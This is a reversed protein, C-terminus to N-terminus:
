NIDERVVGEIELILDAGYVKSPTQFGVSVQGALVKTVIALATMSTLTYGEPCQLRSRKSSGSDSVEGWLRTVGEKRQADTPGPAQSQILRKQFNQVIPLGLLWGLYRSAVMARYASESVATYVEINPIGTSYFATSVDGWPITTTLVAGQGFDIMRTKWAAPVPTLVGGRRVLGGKDQAEVMTTATGRSMNGATFGLALHTASPMQAKLYSALCDSPVVDFGVGPLLMVGASKAEADKAAAAEFVAVEGTIDLYHTKTRLCGEVMPQSTKSFPGACHLVAAVDELAADVAVSNDLSFARHELGLSTALPELKDANRGALIPRLGQQVALKAILTGTYGNAGYLLFNSSMPLPTSVRWVSCM